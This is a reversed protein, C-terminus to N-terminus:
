QRHESRADPSQTPERASQATILLAAPSSDADTEQKTTIYTASLIIPLPETTTVGEETIYVVEFQQLTEPAYTCDASQHLESNCYKCRMIAKARGAFTENYITFHVQSWDLSGMAAAKCRYCLDYTVWGDGNFSKSVNTLKCKTFKLHKGELTAGSSPTDPHVYCKEVKDTKAIGQLVWQSQSKHYRYRQDGVPVMDMVVAYKDSM